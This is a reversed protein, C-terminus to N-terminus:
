SRAQRMPRGRTQIQRCTSSAIGRRVERCGRHRGASGPASRQCASVPRFVLRRSLRLTAPNGCQPAQQRATCWAHRNGIPGAVLLLWFVPIVDPRKLAGFTPARAKRSAAPTRRASVSVMSWRQSSTRRSRSESCRPAAAKVRPQRVFGPPWSKKDFDFLRWRAPRAFDTRDLRRLSDPARVRRQDRVRGCTITDTTCRGDKIRCGRTFATACVGGRRSCAREQIRGVGLTAVLASRQKDRLHPTGRHPARSHRQDETQAAAKPDGGCRAQRSRPRQHHSIVTVVAVVPVM